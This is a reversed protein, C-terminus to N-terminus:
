AKKNFRNERKDSKQNKIKSKQNKIKSKQNKIKSKQNKIKSKQVNPIHGAGRNTKNREKETKTLKLIIKQKVRQGNKAKTENKREEIKRRM